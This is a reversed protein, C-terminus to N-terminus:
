PNFVAQLNRPQRGSECSQLWDALKTTTAGSRSRSRSNPHLHRNHNRAGDSTGESTVSLPTMQVLSARLAAGLKGGDVERAGTVGLSSQPRRMGTCFNIAVAVITRGITMANPALEAALTSASCCQFLQPQM